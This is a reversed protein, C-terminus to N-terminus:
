KENYLYTWVSKKVGSLETWIPRVVGGHASIHNYDGMFVADSPYFPADNIQQESWTQGGDKSVSLYTNTENAKETNRRDYFVAYLYGSTPDVTLWPLFQDSAGGSPSVKSPTSWNAGANDSYSLFIEGGDEDNQDGWCLYIRGHYPSEACHDVASVPMGNCRIFGDYSQSWGAQQQAVTIEQWNKGDLSRSFYIVNDLAWVIYRAKSLGYAPVAGEATQDDDVCDGTRETIVVPDTWTQGQDFSESFLITSKCTSDETGYSDFQTWSLAVAGNSPHIAAWEKDHKKGNVKTFSGDNFAGNIGNKTQCVIRDIISDSRWNTGEPDSLHFYYLVGENDTILCPDGWVGYPSELTQKDWTKGGDTSQYYNNLVSAAYINSTNTPDVSISPECIGTRVALGEHIKVAQAYTSQSPFLCLALASAALFQTIKM